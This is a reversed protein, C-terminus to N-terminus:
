RIRKPQPDKEPEPKYILANSNLNITKLILRLENLVQNLIQINNIITSYLVSGPQLEQIIINLNDMTKHIDKSLINIKPKQLIDNIKNILNKLNKITTKGERLNLNSEKIINDFSIQNIKDILIIIRKQIDNFSNNITPIIRYGLFKKIKTVNLEKDKYFDLDIYTLNSFININKITAYITSKTNNLFYEELNFNNGLTKIFRNPEIRILVPILYNSNLKQKKIAKLFPIELVTGIRIGRFEVPAGIKLGSISNSFFLIYNNYNANLVEQISDKNSFLYYLRKNNIYKGSFCGINTDFNVSNNFINNLSEIEVNMNYNAINASIGSNKWFCIKDTILHSYPEEIFLQYSIKYNVFNFKSNEVTGVRYGRFFVPDGNFLNESKESELIIRTGKANPLVSPEVEILKYKKNFKDTSNGPYLEIYSGSILNSIGNLGENKIKPKVIWFMSDKHLLYKMGYRLRIKIEINNLDKSISIKKVLGVNVNNSKIATRGEEIGRANKTLLIVEPGLHSFQNIMIWIAIFLTLLPFIWIPSWNKIKTLSAYKYNIEM